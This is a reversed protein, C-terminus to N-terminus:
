IADKDLLFCLIWLYHYLAMSVTHSILCNAFNHLFQMGLLQFCIFCVQYSKQSGHASTTSHVLLSKTVDWYIKCSNIKYFQDHNFILLFYFAKHKVMNINFVQVTFKYMLILELSFHQNERSLNWSHNKVSFM